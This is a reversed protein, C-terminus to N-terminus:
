KVVRWNGTLVYKKEEEVKEGLARRVDDLRYCFHRKIVERAQLKHRKEFAKMGAWSKIELQSMVKKRSIYGIENMM